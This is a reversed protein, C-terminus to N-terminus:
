PNGRLTRGASHLDPPRLLAEGRSTEFGGALLAATWPILRRALDGVCVPPFPPIGVVLCPFESIAPAFVRRAACIIIPTALIPDDPKAHPQRSTHRGAALNLSRPPGHHAQRRSRTRGRHTAIKNRHLGAWRQFARGPQVSESRAACFKPRPNRCRSVARSARLSQPLPSPFIQKEPAGQLRTGTTQALGRRRLETKNRAPPLRLLDGCACIKTM